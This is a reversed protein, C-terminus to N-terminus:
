RSTVASLLNEGGEVKISFETGQQLVLNINDYLSVREFYVASRSETVVKGSNTFCDDINERNCGVLLILVSILLCNRARRKSRDKIVKSM